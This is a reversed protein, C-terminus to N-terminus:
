IFLFQFFSIFYYDREVSILIEYMQCSINCFQVPFSIIIKSLVFSYKMCRVPYITFSHLSHLSQSGKSFLTCSVIRSLQCPPNSNMRYSSSSIFLFQLVHFLLRARCFHTNYVDLLLYQLVTCPTYIRHNKQFLCLSFLLMFDHM